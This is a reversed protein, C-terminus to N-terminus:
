GPGRESKASGPEDLVWLSQYKLVCRFSAIGALDGGTRSGADGGLSMPATRALEGMSGTSRSLAGLSGTSRREGQKAQVKAGRGCMADPSRGCMADQSGSKAPQRHGAKGQFALAGEKVPLHAQKSQSSATQV